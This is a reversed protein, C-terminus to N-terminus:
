VQSSVCRSFESGAVDDIARKTWTQAKTLTDAASWIGSGKVALPLLMESQPTVSFDLLRCKSYSNFIKGKFAEAGPM